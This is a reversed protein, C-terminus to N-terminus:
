IATEQSQSKAFLKQCMVMLQTFRTEQDTFEALARWQAFPVDLFREVLEPDFQKGAEGAIVGVAEEHLMAKKYPRESSLADYVDVIAFLRAALPIADGALGRPYGTGDYREHHCRPIDTATALYAVKELIAVGNDVHEEMTRREQRTLLGPKLLIADPVGIKGIDHLLAGRYIDEWQEPDTNTLIALYLCYVAVRRSHGATPRERSDLALVLADLTQAHAAYLAASRQLIEQELKRNWQELEQRQQLALDSLRRNEFEIEYQRVADAVVARLHRDEWPKLLFRSIRGENVSVQASLLDTYGTLTIRIANPQIKMSEVLFESGKMGPMRQDSVIVAVEHRRLLSLAKHGGEATLIEYDRGRLSRRLANLTQVDDDVLLISTAM